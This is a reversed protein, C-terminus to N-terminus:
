DGKGDMWRMVSRFVRGPMVRFSAALVQASYPFSIVAERQYLGTVIAGAAEDASIVFPRNSITESMPTDVIGPRADSVLIGAPELDTRLSALFTALFAKSALYTGNRPMGIGQALSSVGVLHGHGRALMGPMAGLLTAVSGSVNVSIMEECSDWNLKAGPVMRGVGANAIVLDFQFREDLTKIAKETGRPDRLDLAAVHSRGGQQSIQEAQRQLERERRASIVVETGDAALRRALAAGIGSSAGTILATRYTM